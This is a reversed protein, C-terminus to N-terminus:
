HPSYQSMVAIFVLAVTACAALWTGAASTTAVRVDAEAIRAFPVDISDGTLTRGSIVSRDATSVVGRTTDFRVSQGDALRLSAVKAGGISSLDSQVAYRQVDASCGHMASAILPASFLLLSISRM